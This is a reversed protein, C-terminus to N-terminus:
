GLAVAHGLGQASGGARSRDKSNDRKGADDGAGRRIWSRGPGSGRRRQPEAPQSSLRFLANVFLGAISMDAAGGSEM